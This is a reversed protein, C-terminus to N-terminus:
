PGLPSTVVTSPLTITLVFTVYLVSLALTAASPVLWNVTWHSEPRLTMPPPKRLSPPVSTESRSDYGLLLLVAHVTKTPLSSRGPVGAPLYVTVAMQASM